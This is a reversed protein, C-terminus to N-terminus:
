CSTPCCIPPDWFEGGREPRAVCKWVFLLPDGSLCACGCYSQAWGKSGLFEPKVCHHKHLGHPVTGRTAARRNKDGAVHPRGRKRAYAVEHAHQFLSLDFGTGVLVCLARM